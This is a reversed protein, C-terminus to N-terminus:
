FSRAGAKRFRYTLYLVMGIAACIMDFCADEFKGARGAIFTQHWEDTLSFIAAITWALISFKFLKVKPKGYTFARMLLIGLVSYEVCHVLKHFFPIPLDPINGASISSLFFIFYMWVLVPLWVRLFCNGKDDM